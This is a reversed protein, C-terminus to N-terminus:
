VRTMKLYENIAQMIEFIYYGVALVIEPKKEMLQKNLKLCKTFIMVKVNIANQGYQQVMKVVENAYQGCTVIFTIDDKNEFTFHEKAYRHLKRKSSM